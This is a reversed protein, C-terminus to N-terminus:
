CRCPNRDMGLLLGGPWSDWPSIWRSPSLANAASNGACESHVQQGHPLAAAAGLGPAPRDVLKHLMLQHRAPDIDPIGNHHV